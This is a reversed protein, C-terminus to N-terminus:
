ILELTTETGANEQQGPSIWFLGNVGDVRVLVPPALENISVLRTSEVIIRSAVLFYSLVGIGFKSISTYTVQNEALLKYFDESKYYCSGVKSYHKAVINEDM